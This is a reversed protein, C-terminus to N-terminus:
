SVMLGFVVESVELALGPPNPMVNIPKSRQRDGLGGAAVGVFEFSPETALGLTVDVAVGIRRRARACPILARDPPNLYLGVVDRVMDVAMPDTSPKLTEARWPRLGFTHWIRSVTTQSLGTAAALSRSSRHTANRPKSEENRSSRLNCRHAHRAGTTDTRDRHGPPQPQRGHATTTDALNDIM